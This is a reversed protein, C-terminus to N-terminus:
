RRRRLTPPREMLARLYSNEPEGASARDAARATEFSLIDIAVSDDNRFHIAEIDSDRDFETRWTVSDGIVRQIQESM